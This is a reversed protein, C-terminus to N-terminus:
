LPWFRVHCSTLAGCVAKAAAVSLDLDAGNAYPGRDGIRVVRCAAPGCVFVYSGLPLTRHAATLAACDYRGGDATKTGCLGDAGGYYTALVQKPAASFGFAAVFRDVFTPQEPGKHDRAQAPILMLFLAIAFATKV